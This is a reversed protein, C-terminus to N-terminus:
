FRNGPLKATLAASMLFGYVVPLSSLSPLCMCVIFRNWYVLLLLLCIVSSAELLNFM